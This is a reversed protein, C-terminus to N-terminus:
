AENQENEVIQTHARELESVIRSLTQIAKQKERQWREFEKDRQHSDSRLPVAEKKSYLRELEAAKTRWKNTEERAANLAEILQDVRQVLQTWELNAM